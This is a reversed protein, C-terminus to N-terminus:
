FILETERYKHNHMRVMKINIRMKIKTIRNTRKTKRKRLNNQCFMLIEM